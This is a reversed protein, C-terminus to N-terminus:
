AGVALLERLEALDLEGTAEVSSALRMRTRADTGLRDYCTAIAAEAGSRFDDETANLAAHVDLKWEDTDWDPAPESGAAAQAVDAAPSWQETAGVHPADRRRQVLGRLIPLHVPRTASTPAQTARAHPPEQTTERPRASRAMLRDGLYALVGALATIAGILLWTRASM